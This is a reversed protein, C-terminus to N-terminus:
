RMLTVNGNFDRGGIKAVYFYVGDTVAEGDGNNGDWGATKNNTQWLRVGWRDFVICEFPQDGTYLIQFFDNVGDGNPSFVNPILLDPTRIIYPGHTVEAACGEASHVTLTVFFTGEQGFTHVPNSETSVIGDGFDWTWQTAGTSLDEFGVFTNPFALEVPFTPDSTFEAIPGAGVNVTITSVEDTCGGPAAVLLSVNYSGPNSFVHEPQPQNNVASGDGFDWVYSTGGAATQMFSVTLPACGDTPSSLYDAIPRPLVNITFTTSDHCGGTGVVMTYTTTIDPSAMPTLSTPDDLGTTPIWQVNGGLSSSGDIRISDRQCMVTTDPFAEALTVAGVSVLVSDYSSCVSYRIELTYMTSVSPWVTPDELTSDNMAASPTWGYYFQGAPVTDTTTYWYGGQLTISDGPCIALNPGADAQPAPRVFVTASDPASECGFSSTATVYYTTTQGPAVTPDEVNASGVITAAPTWSFTYTATSDGFASADLLTDQLPCIERDWGANVTPLTHVFVTATDGYSPCGNSWVVLTYDTTLPPYAWPSAASSDSLDNSPTWEFDYLPGAGTAVGELQVTDGYCIERDPGANAIPIPNVHVTVSSLTDTTTFDSACGNGATVVLVYITTTDPRACPNLITPDNLGASPIWNYTYPGPAGTITPTLIECPANDGCLIVDPGADVIPKPLVAVFVSDTDSVCGNIDTVQVYYWQSTTPNALPDDDFTSDLGCPPNSCWWNYFYGPTGSSAIALITAGGEGECFTVDPGATVVPSPIQGVTGSVVATCGRADSITVSYNGPALGTVYPGNQVPVTNWQYSYPPTAGSAVVGITGNPLSSVCSNPTSSIVGQLQTPQTLTITLNDRCGNQDTVTVTYTGAALNTANPGTQGNSWAYTYAPVGASANVTVSGDSGGFCSINNFTVLAIIPSGAQTILTSGTVTCGNGDTVTVTVTGANLNTATASTQGNSWLYSYSTTGGSPTATASGNAIGCIAGVSTLTVGLVSPETITFQISDTCGASDTAWVWYTGATLNSANSGTQQPTTGWTITIPATGGTTSASAAGNNGGFCSVNTVSPVTIVPAPISAITVNGVVTCGLIDTATVSYNGPALNTATATNQVPITSWAYSYTGNGGAASATASGNSQGCYANTRTITVTVPTPQTVVISDVATCSVSNTTTLTSTIVINNIAVSPDSGAGDDNNTWNIGIQLSPNNWTSAPLPFSAATWQGQGSVCNVSKISPSLMAWGLGDNYWVSANDLLGDGMSIFDFSLTLNNFGTTNILPSEARRNTEPCFLIGCLGGADYAAGCTPCFVSTIHLTNNGNTAVGCGPPLVGGENDNIVWFNNDVGNPGTAVNLTWGPAPDFDESYVTVNSTGSGGTTDTVTVYYTGAALGCITDNTAGNSWLYSFVGSPGGSATVIACGDAGGNCSVATMSTGTIIQAPQTLTTSLTDSCGNDDTITVSYTGAALGSISDTTQGNSWLVNYTPTGGVHTVVASGDGAGFCTLDHGTITTVLDAPQTITISDIVTCLIPSGTLSGQATVTVNNIAVSPDTGVGDDNNTWNIGIQLSPVNWTAPPLAASFNTWQGQGSLCNVSKISPNLLTWGAGANYWVSANDLLADGMSIFDFSLSLNNNGVTSFAPSEARMNTQPCFLIGCLGGADYAAGCTPCFASTIHMTKNGNTAVGCGPPLVGGENDNIVWFNNDVGNVGTPVNLTWNLSGEFTENFLVVPGGVSTVTSTDTITVVYTGAPLGCVTAITDGTSWEYHYNGNGGAPTATVCTTGGFCPISTGTVAVTLPAPQTIPASATYTCLAFGGSFGSGYTTDTLTVTYSGPALSCITDGTSGNSWAWSFNGNGGSAVAGLCGDAAGNCSINQVFPINLTVPPPQNITVYATDRCGNLDVVIVSYSGATLGTATAATQVPITSWTYTFNPTGGTVNVTASGTAAGNCAVHVVNTITAVPPTQPNLNFSQTFTCGAQDTVTVNYTGGSLNSISSVNGAAPSWTYNYNPTGGSPNLSISGLGNCSPQVVTPNIATISNATTVQVTDRVTVTSNDCNTYVVQAYYSTTSQAPPCVTVTSTSSLAVPNGVQFWQTTSNSPGAPVFRWADNTAAWQTPFNRGPVVTAATGAANQIGHIAAGGNWSTCTRKQAIYTEIINTTEYLVIQQTANLGTNNQCSSGYMPINYWSVVFTRCPATGYTAWRISKTQGSQNVSPDIDHWPAMICNRMDAPNVSPIAAGIPWTNYNGANATNFSLGGNAGVVCQNYVNGYFCFNFPIPLVPGWIDDINVIIATGTTYSYPNYPIQGVTYSTTQFGALNTATLNTCQTTCPLAQNPGANVSPCSITPQAIAISFSSAVFLLLYSLRTLLKRM